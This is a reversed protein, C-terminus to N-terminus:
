WAPIEKRTRAFARQLLGRRQPAPRGSLRAAVDKIARSLQSGPAQELVPSGIDTSESAQKFQNPVLMFTDGPLARKLDALEVPATKSYRNVLIHISERPLALERTLIKHLRVANKIQLVTQQTVLVVQDARELATATSSDLHHPIDIIAHDYHKALLHLLSELREGSLGGALAASGNVSSLVRLNRRCRSMHGELAIEDLENVAELAELLGREADIDLYHRIAAFHVDLDVLATAAGSEEALAVAVNCALFSVGAGGASGAFATITGARAAAVKTRIEDRIRGLAALFEDTKVPSVLFDRAGARMALRMAEADGHPGIVLLPPRRSNDMQSLTSLEELQDANCWLVVIDPSWDLGYLPDVHGNDILRSVVDFDLEDGVCAAMADLAVRSRSTLLIKMTRPM